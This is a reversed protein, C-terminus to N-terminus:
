MAPTTENPTVKKRQPQQRHTLAELLEGYRVAAAGQPQREGREWRWVTVPAVGIPEAVESLSLGAALRISRAVGTRTLARANSLRVLEDPTM